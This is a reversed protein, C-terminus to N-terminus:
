PRADSALQFAGLLGIDDGYESGRIYRDTHRLLTPSKVYEALLTLFHKRIKPFLAKRQMVGGGLVICHLSMLLTMSLCLQALYFSFHEWVQHSDPLAPLATHPKNIRAALAGNAVLGELCAGHFPCTGPFAEDGPARPVRVHGGEPHVLGHLPTGGLVVGVGVGTGVTVYALTDTGAGSSRLRLEALAAANVDTDFGIPVELGVAAAVAGRIDTNAWGPKPTSTIFGYTRSSRDLDVPGFSAIGVSIVRDPLSKLWSAVHRLTERPTTTAVVTRHLPKTPADPQCAALKFSTGGAEIGAFLPM